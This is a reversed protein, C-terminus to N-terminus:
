LTIRAIGGMKFYKKEYIIQDTTFGEVKTWEKTWAIKKRRM